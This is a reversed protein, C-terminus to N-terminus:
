CGDDCTGGCGDSAGCDFAGCSPSCFCGDDCIGGCGDSTGCDSGGCSPVCYCSSCTGGCGDPTGCDFPGCSPTCFCGFTCTGGCGDLTGCDLPGCSPICLCGFTCIGGCGDAGGCLVGACSPVCVCGINCTGGCGDPSGCAVGSCTPGCPLGGAFGSDLTGGGDAASAGDLGQIDAPASRSDPAPRADRLGSDSCNAGDTPADASSSASNAPPVYGLGVDTGYNTDRPPQRSSCGSVLLPVGASLAALVSMVKLWVTTAKFREPM